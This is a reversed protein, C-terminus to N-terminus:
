KASCRADIASYQRITSVAM